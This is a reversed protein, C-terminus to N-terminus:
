NTESFNQISESINHLSIAYSNICYRLEYDSRLGVVSKRQQMGLWATTYITTSTMTVDM